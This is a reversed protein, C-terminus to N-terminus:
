LKHKELAKNAQGVEQRNPRAKAFCSESSGARRAPPICPCINVLVSRLDQGVLLM